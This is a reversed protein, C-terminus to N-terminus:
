NDDVIEPEEPGGVTHLSNYFTHYYKPIAETRCLSLLDDYLPKPLPIPETYMTSLVDNDNMTRKPRGRIPKASTDISQFENDYDYKFYLIDPETHNVKIEHIKTWMVKEKTGATRLWYRKNMIERLNFFENQEMETLKFKNGNVKSNIIIGYVQDPTYITHNKKAREICSHMSDGESQSHGTEFYRHVINVGYKQSVYLYLSFIMRNKNQGACGDSYFHFNTVGKARESEIFKLLCSGIESAGRKAIQYHWVYCYGKSNLADYVTFNYIPYKRKYHFIGVESQPINLVKELDYIAVTTTLPDCESKDQAKLKRVYEKNRIHKEHSERLKEKKEDDAQDYLTCSGCMDKKPVHFSYNFKTNFVTEYQRKSAIRVAGGDESLYNGGKFWEEFLRYMKSINLTEELYFKKTDIRVYHAEKVPFLKIHTIISLETSLSMKRPRNNHIGRNDTIDESKVKELATYVVKETIALTNLFFKKCVEISDSDNKNVKFDYKITQTRNKKRDLTMKKIDKSKAHRTIYHWQKEHDGLKWFENFIVERREQLIKEGCKKVCKCPSRINKKEFKKKTHCGNYELGSNKQKKSKVCEWDEKFQKRKRTLEKTVISSSINPTFSEPVPSNPTSPDAVIKETVIVAAPSDAAVLTLITPSNETTSIPQNDILFDANFSITDDNPKNKQKTDNTVPEECNLVVINMCCDEDPVPSVISGLEVTKLVILNNENETTAKLSNQYLVEKNEARTPQQPSYEKEQSLTNWQKCKKRHPTNFVVTPSAVFNVHDFITSDFSFTSTTQLLHISPIDSFPSVCSLTPSLPGSFIEEAATASTKAKTNEVTVVETKTNEVSVM